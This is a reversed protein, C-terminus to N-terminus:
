RAEVIRDSDPIDGISLLLRSDGFLGTSDSRNGEAGIARTQGGGAGILHDANPIHLPGLLNLQKAAVDADHIVDREMRVTAPDHGRAVIMGDSDPIRRFRLLEGDSLFVGATRDVRQNDAWVALVKDGGARIASDM